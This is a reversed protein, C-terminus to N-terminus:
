KKKKINALALVQHILFAPCGTHQSQETFDCTCVIRGDLHNAIEHIKALRTELSELRQAINNLDGSM